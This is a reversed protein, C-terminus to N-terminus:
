GGVKPIEQYDMPAKFLKDSIDGIDSRKITQHHKQYDTALM